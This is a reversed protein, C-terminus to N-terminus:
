RGKPHFKGDSGWYGQAKRGPLLGRKELARKQAATMQRVDKVGMGQRVKRRYLQEDTLKKKPTLSPGTSQTAGMVPQRGTNQFGPKIGSLGSGAQTFGLKPGSYSPTMSTKKKKTTRGPGPVLPM